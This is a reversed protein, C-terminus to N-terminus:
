VKGRRKELAQSRRTHGSPLMLFKINYFNLIFYFLIFTQQLHYYSLKNRKRKTNKKKKLHMGGVKTRRVRPIRAIGIASTSGIHQRIEPNNVNAV